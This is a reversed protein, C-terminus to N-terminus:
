EVVIAPPKCLSTSPIGALLLSAIGVGWKKSTRAKTLEKPKTAIDLQDNQKDGFATTKQINCSNKHNFVNLQNSCIRAVEM